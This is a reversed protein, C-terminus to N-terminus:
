LFKRRTLKPLSEQLKVFQDAKSPIEDEMKHVFTRVILQEWLKPVSTPNVVEGNFVKRGDSLYGYHRSEKQKSFVDMPHQKTNNNFALQDLDIGTSPSPGLESFFRRPSGAYFEAPSDNPINIMGIM